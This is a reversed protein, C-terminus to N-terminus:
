DSVHRLSFVEEFRSAQHNPDVVTHHCAADAYENCAAAEVVFAENNDKLEAVAVAVDAIEGTHGETKSFKWFLTEQNQDMDNGTDVLEDPM